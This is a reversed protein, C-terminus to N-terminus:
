GQRAGRIETVVGDRLVIELNRVMDDFMDGVRVEVSTEMQGGSVEEGIPTQQIHVLQQMMQERRELRAGREREIGMTVQQVAQPGHQEADQLAKRGQFELQYSTKCM